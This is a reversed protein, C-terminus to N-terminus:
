INKEFNLPIKSKSFMSDKLIKIEEYKNVIEKSLNNKEVNINNSIQAIKNKNENELNMLKKSILELKLNLNSIENINEKILKEQNDIKEGMEAIIKDKEDIINKIDDEKKLILLNSDNIRKNINKLENIIYENNINNYDDKSIKFKEM